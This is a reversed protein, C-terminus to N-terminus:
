DLRIKDPDAPSVRIKIKDEAKLSYFRDDAATFHLKGVHQARDNPANYTLNVTATAHVFDARGAQNKVSDLFSRNMSCAHTDTYLEVPKGLESSPFRSTCIRDIRFVTAETPVWAIESPASSCAAILCVIAVGTMGRLHVMRGKLLNVLISDDGAVYGRLLIRPDLGSM